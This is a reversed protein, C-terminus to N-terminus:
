STPAACQQTSAVPVLCVGYTVQTKAYTFTSDDVTGSYEPMILRYRSPTMAVLASVPVTVVTRFRYPAECGNGQSMRLGVGGKVWGDATKRVVYSRPSIPYKWCDVLAVSTLTPKLTKCQYSNADGEVYSCAAMDAPAPAAHAVGPVGVAALLAIGAAAVIISRHM